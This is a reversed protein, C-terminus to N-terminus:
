QAPCRVYQDNRRETAWTLKDDSVTLTISTKWKKGDNMCAARTRWVNPGVQQITVFDCTAGFSDARLSTITLPPSGPTQRCQELSVGWGGLYAGTAASALHPTTPSFLQRQAELSWTDDDGIGQAKRFDRLAQKSLSGWNGDATGFLFGLEILRQQVRKVDEIKNLDIPLLAPDSPAAPANPPPEVPPMSKPEAPQPSALPTTGTIPVQTQTDGANTPEQSSASAPPPDRPVSLSPGSQLAPEIPPTQSVRRSNEAPGPTSSPIPSSQNSSHVAMFSLLVFLVIAILVGVAFFAKTSPQFTTPSLTPPSSGGFPTPSPQISGARIRAVVEQFTTQNPTAPSSSRGLPTPSPQITRGKIQAVIEQNSPKSSGSSGSSVFFSRYSSSGTSPSPPPRPPSWSGIGPISGPHTPPKIPKVTVNTGTRVTDVIDSNRPPIVKGISQLRFRAQAEDLHQIQGDEQITISLHEYGFRHSRYVPDLLGTVSVWRGVWLNSPTEKLKDLGESWISIKVIRGRWSGFNIFIYPRDRGRGRRGVGPKVEVIKGILEVRDGVRKEAADFDLADVVPFAAIYGLARPQKVAASSTTGIGIPSQISPINKGALFDALTPVKSIPAECIAAFSEAQAKLKAKSQLIRFIESNQPDAFDNAKFIITEGGERFKKYLSKDEDVAHLSLDLAIFSFRDMTPGFNDTTRDPHQFHKHGIESGGGTSLGPVFMGDYDILKIARASLMVNGNQIDGHAIGAGDLFAALGAFDSRAKRLAATNDFHRDLWVGLPDGEVWDMKVIPFPSGKVKIGSKQFDFNVFYGSNLSKVTKSIQGYKKEIAPIEKHFCRIAYRKQSANITYTLAFGGSLVLPLGLNNEKVSGRKL